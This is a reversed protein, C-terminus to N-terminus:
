YRFRIVINTIDYLLYKSVTSIPLAGTKIEISPVGGTVRINGINNNKQNSKKSCHHELSQFLDKLFGLSLKGHSNDSGTRKRHKRTM